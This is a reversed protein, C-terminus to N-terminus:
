SQNSSVRFRRICNGSIVYLIVYAALGNVEDAPIYVYDMGTINYYPLYVDDIGCYWRETGFRISSISTLICRNEENPNQPDQSKWGLIYEQRFSYIGKYETLRLLSILGVQSAVVICNLEKIHCVTNIRNLAFIFDHCSCFNAEELPFVKEATFSTILLPHAKLLYICDATTVLFFDDNLDKLKFGTLSRESGDEINALLEHVKTAHNHISWKRQSSPSVTEPYGLRKAWNNEHASGLTNRIESSISNGDEIDEESEVGLLEISGRDIRENLQENLSETSTRDDTHTGTDETSIGCQQNWSATISQYSNKDYSISIGYFPSTPLRLFHRSFHNLKNPEILHRNRLPINQLYFDRRENLATFKYSNKLINGSSNRSVTTNRNNALDFKTNWWKSYRKIEEDNLNEQEWYKEWFVYYRRIDDEIYDITTHETDQRQSLPQVTHVVEGEEEEEEEEEERVNKLKGSSINEEFSTFRLQVFDKLHGKQCGLSVESVPVPIQTTLTGIGLNNSYYISPPHFGLTTDDDCISTLISKKFSTQFNLNLYEFEPITLFDKKSLSTITWCFTGFFQTDLFNTELKGTIKNFKVKITTINGYISCFGLTVYGKEDLSNPVFSICPVNHKSIIETTIIKSPDLYWKNPLEDMPFVFLSIGPGNHGIAVYVCEETSYTDVSWCSAPVVLVTLPLIKMRFEENLDNGEDDHQIRCIDTRSKELLDEIPYFLAKSEEICLCLMDVDGFKVIKMFNITPMRNLEPVSAPTDDPTTSDTCSFIITIGQWKEDGEIDVIKHIYVDDDKAIFIYEKYTVTLNNKFTAENNSNIRNSANFSDITPLIEEIILRHENSLLLEAPNQIGTSSWSPELTDKAKKIESVLHDGMETLVPKTIAYQDSKSLYQDIADIFQPPFDHSIKDSPLKGGNSCLIYRKIPISSRLHSEGHSSAFISTDFCFNPRETRRAIKRHLLWNNFADDIDIPM